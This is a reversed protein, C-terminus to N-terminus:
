GDARERDALGLSQPRFDDWLRGPKGAPQTQGHGCEISQANSGVGVVLRFKEPLGDLIEYGRAFRSNILQTSGGSEDFVIPADHYPMDAPMQLYVHGNGSFVRVPKFRAEGTCAYNFDLTALDLQGLTADKTEQQALALAQKQRADTNVKEIIEQPNYFQVLPVYVDEDSKLTMYYVRGADTLVTLNTELKVAVPKTVVVPTDGARSAAVKWRVSDGISLDTIQEGTILQIVCLHLPACRIVPRTEGYAYMVVGNGGILGAAQGTREWLRAARQAESDAVTNAVAPRPAKRVSPKRPQTQPKATAAAAISPVVPVPNVPAARTASEKDGTLPNLASEAPTALAAGVDPPVESDAWVKGASAALAVASLAISFLSKM